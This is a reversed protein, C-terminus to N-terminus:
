MSFSGKMDKCKSQLWEIFFEILYPCSGEFQWCRLSSKKIDYAFVSCLPVADEPTFMGM